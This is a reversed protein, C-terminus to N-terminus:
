HLQGMMIQSSDFYKNCNWQGGLKNIVTLINIDGWNWRGRRQKKQKQKKNKNKNQKTKNKKKNKKQKKNKNLEICRKWHMSRYLRTVNFFIYKNLLHKTLQCQMLQQVLLGHKLLLSDIKTKLVIFYYLYWLLILYKSCYFLINVICLWWLWVCLWVPFLFINNNKQELSYHVDM